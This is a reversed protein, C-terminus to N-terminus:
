TYVRGNPRGGTYWGVIHDRRRLPRTGTPLRDLTDFSRDRVCVAGCDTCAQLVVYRTVGDSCDVFGGLWNSLNHDDNVSGNSSAMCAATPNMQIRLPNRVVVRLPKWLRKNVDRGGNLMLDLTPAIPRPRDFVMARVGNIVAVRPETM